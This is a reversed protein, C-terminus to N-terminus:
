SINSSEQSLVHFFRWILIGTSIIMTLTLAFWISRAGLDLIIAMFYIGGVGIGWYISVDIWMPILTDQLGQLAGVVILHLGYISQCFAAIALLSISINVIETYNISSSDLYISIIQPSFLWIAVALIGTVIANLFLDILLSNKIGEINNLGLKQGVRVTTSYSFGFPIVTALEFVSLTIEHAALNATGLYGMFFAALIFLGLEAGFEIALPVGIKIIKAFLDRDGYWLSNFLQYKQFDPHFQMYGLITFFTLTFIITSAWGAGALGLAPFGWHGFILAYNALASLPVSIATIITIFQPRDCATAVEKFIVIGLAAPLGWVIAQLYIQAGRAITEEQGLLPLISGLHWLIVMMPLSFFLNLWLGQITLKRIEEIDERAFAEATLAGLGECLGTGIDIFMYLAIVGLGGAALAESGLWGMMVLDIFGIAKEAFQTLVSPIALKLSSEIPHM